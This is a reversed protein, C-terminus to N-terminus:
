EVPQGGRLPLHRKWRVGRPKPRAESPTEAGPSRRANSPQPAEKGGDRYEKAVPGQREIGKLQDKIASKTTVWAKAAAAIAKDRDIPGLEFLRVMWRNRSGADAGKMKQLEELEALVTDLCGGGVGDVEDDLDDFDVADGSGGPELHYTVQQGHAM